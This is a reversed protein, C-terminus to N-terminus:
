QPVLTPFERALEYSGLSALLDTVVNAPSEDFVRAEPFMRRLAQEAVETGFILAYATFRSVGAQGLATGALLHVVTWGDIAPRDNM